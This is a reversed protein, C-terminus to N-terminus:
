SWLNKQAPKPRVIAATEPRVNVNLEGDRPGYHEHGHENGNAAATVDKQLRYHVPLQQFDSANWSSCAEKTTASVNVAKNELIARGDNTYTQQKVSPKTPKSIGVSPKSAEHPTTIHSSSIPKDDKQFAEHSKIRGVIRDNNEQNINKKKKNKKQKQKVSRATQCRADINEKGDGGLKDLDADVTTATSSQTSQGSVIVTEEPM